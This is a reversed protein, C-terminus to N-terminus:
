LGGRELLRFLVVVLILLVLAAIAYNLANM